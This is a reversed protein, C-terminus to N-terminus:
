PVLDRKVSYFYAPIEDYVPFKKKYALVGGGSAGWNILFEGGELEYLHRFTAFDVYMCSNRISNDVKRILYEYSDEAKHLVSYGIMKNDIYYFQSVLNGREEEYWREFFNRDFGSHRVWGYKGGSQIDWRDILGMVDDKNYEGVRVIKDFKNRTERIERYNGGSLGFFDGGLVSIVQTEKSAKCEPRDYIYSYFVKPYDPAFDAHFSIAANRNKRLGQWDGLVEYRKSMMGMVCYRSNYEFM